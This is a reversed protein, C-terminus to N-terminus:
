PKAEQAVEPVATKEVYQWAYDWHEQKRGEPFRGDAFKVWDAEKLVAVISRDEDKEVQNTIEETTMDLAPFTRIAGMYARLIESLSFYYSKEELQRSIWQERLKELAQRAIKEPPEAPAMFHRQRRKKMVYWSGAAILCISIFFGLIVPLYKVWLPEQPVIDKIPRPTAKDPNEPLDSTLKLSIPKSKFKAPNGHEDTFNLELEPILFTDLTDALFQLELGQSTKKVNLIKGKEIGSIVPPDSLKAGKALEFKLSVHVLDGVHAATEVFGAQMSFASTQNENEQALAIPTFFALIFIFIIWRNM